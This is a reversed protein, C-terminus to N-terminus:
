LYFVLKLVVEIYENDEVASRTRASCGAIIEASFNTKLQELWGSNLHVTSGSVASSSGAQQQNVSVTGSSEGPLGRLSEQSVSENLVDITDMLASGDASSAVSDNSTSQLTDGPGRGVTGDVGNFTDALSM